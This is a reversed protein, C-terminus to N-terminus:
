LESRWSGAVSDVILSEMKMSKSKMSKRMVTTWNKSVEIRESGEWGRRWLRNKDLTESEERGTIELQKYGFRLTETEKRSISM